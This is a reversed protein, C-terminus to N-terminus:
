IKKKVHKEHKANMASSYWHKVPTKALSSELLVCAWLSTMKLSRMSHSSIPLTQLQADSPSAVVGCLKTKSDVLVKDCSPSKPMRKLPGLLKSIDTGLGHRTAAGPQKPVKKTQRFTRIGVSYRQGDDCSIRTVAGFASFPMPGRERRHWISM